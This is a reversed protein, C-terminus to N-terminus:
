ILVIFPDPNGLINTAARYDALSIGNEYDVRIARPHDILADDLACWECLGNANEAIYTRIAQLRDDVQFPYRTIGAIPATIGQGVAIDRLASLGHCNWSSNFVISAGTRECLRNVAAVGLPDFGGQRDRHQALYSRGPKIVGDIDLFLLRFM